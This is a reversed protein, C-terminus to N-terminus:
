DSRNAGARRGEPGPPRYPARSRLSCRRSSVKFSVAEERGYTMLRSSSRSGVSVSNV